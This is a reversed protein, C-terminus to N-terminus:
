LNDRRINMIYIKCCKSYLPVCDQVCYYTKPSTIFELSESLFIQMFSGEKYNMPIIFFCTGHMKNRSHNIGLGVPGPSEILGHAKSISVSRSSGM